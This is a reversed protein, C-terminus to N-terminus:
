ITIAKTFTCFTTPNQQQIKIFTTPYTTPNKFLNRIIAGRQERVTGGLCLDVAVRETNTNIGSSGHPDM